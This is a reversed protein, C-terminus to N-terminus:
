DSTSESVGDDSWRRKEHVTKKHKYYAPDRREELFAYFLEIAVGSVTIGVGMNIWLLTGGSFLEGLAGGPPFNISRNALFNYGAVIGVMGVVIYILIGSSALGKIRGEPLARRGEDKNFALGLLIFSAGIIVGGQFGGGPTLHGHAMVSLGFMLLFPIMMRTVTQIVLSTRYEPGKTKDGM